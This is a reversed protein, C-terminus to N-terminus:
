VYKYNLPIQIKVITKDDEELLKLYAKKENRQNLTSFLKQYTSLGIGTDSSNKINNIKEGSNSVKLLIYDEKETVNVFIEGGKESKSIGHKVANEVLNKLLLRPIQIQSNELNNQIEFHIPMFLMTKQLSIFDEIQELQNELSETISNNLSAKTVNLLKIMRRYSDPAKEQIEPSISALLNKMEHPNLQNNLTSLESEVLKQQLELLNNQQQLEKHKQKNRYLFVSFAFLALASGGGMYALNVNRKQKEIELQQQNIQTEKRATQYRIEFHTTQTLKENNYLSDRVSKYHKLYQLADKYNQDKESMEYLYFYTGSLEQLLNNEEFLTKAKEFYFRATPFDQKVYYLKGQWFYVEGMRGSIGKEKYIALAKDLKESAEYFLFKDILIQAQTMLVSAFAFHKPNSSLLNYAENLYIEASDTKNLKLYTKALNYNWIAIDTNSEKKVYPSTLIKKYIEIAKERQLNRDHTTAISNLIRLIRTSDKLEEAINLAKEGYFYATEYDGIAQNINARVTNLRLHNLANEPSSIDNSLSAEAKNAYDIATEIERKQYYIFALIAYIEGKYNEDKSYQISKNLNVIASDYQYGMYLSYGLAGYSKGLELHNKKALNLAKEAYFISSDTNVVDFSKSIKLLLELNDPNKKLEKKLQKIENTQGFLLCFQYILFFLIFYKRM